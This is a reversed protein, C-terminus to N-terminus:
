RDKFFRFLSRERITAIGALSGLIVGLLGLWIIRLASSMLAGHDIALEPVVFAYTLPILMMCAAFAWVLDEVVVQLMLAPKPVGVHLASAFEMRRVRKFAFGLALGLGLAAPVALLSAREAALKVSDLNEGHRTNLQSLTPTEVPAITVATLLLSADEGTSRPIDVWCADYRESAMGTEVAAWSLGAQRGDDPYEYVGTITASGVDLAIEDGAALSLTSALEASIYFGGPSNPETNSLLSIFNPSVRMLPISTGPMTSATITGAQRLAGSARVGALSALNECAEGNIGQTSAITRVTAGSAEFARADAIVGRLTYTDFIALAGVVLTFILVSLLPKSNRTSVNQLAESVISRIQMM